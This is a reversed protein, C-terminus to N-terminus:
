AADRKIAAPCSPSHQLLWERFRGMELPQLDTWGIPWGMVWEVYDPSLRGHRGDREVWYDLRNRLRTRGDARTLARESSGKGMAVSPTPVTEGSWGSVSASMLRASTTREWLEGTLMSGWKPLIVSSWHLDETWLDGHTRWTLRSLSFRASSAHWTSGSGRAPGKSESARAPQPSTRAPFAGLFWTLLEEGHDATLVACTLGFRSLQSPEMTRDNRWFKHQTPIVSLPASPEIASCNARSFAAVLARSFLWSM